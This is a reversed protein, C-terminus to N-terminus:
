EEIISDKVKLIEEVFKDSENKWPSHGSHEFWVIKKDPADLVDYYEEVLSTPANIDHRGLFFYVPVQLKQYDKRLDIDYLQPYVHNFTSIIGRFFNIKDIIGFEPSFIDRFTNYGNNQIKPNNSMYSSLYNIYEASNWTVDKGFYPPRGIAKLKKIKNDDGKERAIELAKDYDMLETELFDVMQGTGIVAHYRNPRDSALFIGLASGWSEGVVYIKEKEFRKCLYETLALGDQIYDDVVLSNKAAAYYSKGSGPQDWNVVVFYKELEALDHRVAAMQSGGPGGALFLLVPKEKNEGRINIWEKRGNLEIKTIESISGELVEGQEGLIPPTKTTLQSFMSFILMVVMLCCLVVGTGKLRTITKTHAKGKRKKILISIGLIIGTMLVAAVALILIIFIIFQNM